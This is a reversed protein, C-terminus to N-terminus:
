KYDLRPRSEALVVWNRALEPWDEEGTSRIMKVGIEIITDPFGMYAMTSMPATMTPRNEIPPPLDLSATPASKSSGAKAAKKKEPTDAKPKPKGAKQLSKDTKLQKILKNAKELKNFADDLQELLKANQAAEGAL